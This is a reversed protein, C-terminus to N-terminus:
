LAGGTLLAVAVPGGLVVTAVIFAVTLVVIFGACLWITGNEILDAMDRRTQATTAKRVAQARKAQRAALRANNRTLAPNMPATSWATPM